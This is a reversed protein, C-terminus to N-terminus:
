EIVVSGPGLRTNCANQWALKEGATAQDISMIIRRLPGFRYQFRERLKQSFVKEYEPGFVSQTLTKLEPALNDWTLKRLEEFAYEIRRSELVVADYLLQGSLNLHDTCTVLTANPLGDAGLEFYCKCNAPRWRAM